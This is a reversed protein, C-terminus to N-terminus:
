SDARSAAPQSSLKGSLLLMGVASLGIAWLQAQTLGFGVVPEIRVFEVFFRELSTLILYVGMVQGAVSFRRSRILHALIFAILL